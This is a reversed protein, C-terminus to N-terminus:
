IFLSCDSLIVLEQTLLLTHFSDLGKYFIHRGRNADGELHLDTGVGLGLRLGLELGDENGTGVGVRVRLTVEVGVAVRVGARVRFGM